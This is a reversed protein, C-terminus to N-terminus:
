AVFGFNGGMESVALDVQNNGEPEIEATKNTENAQQEEAPNEPRPQTNKNGMSRVRGSKQKRNNKLRSDALSNPVGTCCLVNSILKQPHSIETKKLMHKTRANRSVRKPLEGKEALNRSFCFEIRMDLTTQSM